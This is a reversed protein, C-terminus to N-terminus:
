LRGEIDSHSAEAQNLSTGHRSAEAQNLSIEDDTDTDTNTDSSDTESSDTDSSNTDSSDTDSSDTDSSDTDSSDSSDTDSSDTDSSDTDLSNTDSSNTHSSDTDSSDTDSSNTDSSNTDTQDAQDLSTGRRWADMDRKLRRVIEMEKKLWIEGEQPLEVPKSEAEDRREDNSAAPDPKSIRAESKGVKEPADEDPYIAYEDPYGEFEFDTAEDSKKVDAKEKKEPAVEKLLEEPYGLFDRQKHRLESNAEDSTAENLRAEEAYSLPKSDAENGFSIILIVVALLFRMKLNKM